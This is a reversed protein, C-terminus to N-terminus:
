IAMRVCRNYTVCSSKDNLVEIAGYAYMTVILANRLTFSAFGHSSDQGVIM